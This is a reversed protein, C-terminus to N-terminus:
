SNKNYSIENLLKACQKLFIIKENLDLENQTLFLLNHNKAEFYCNTIEFEVFIQCLDNNFFDKVSNEDDSALIYNESFCENQDSLKINPYKYNQYFSDLDNITEIEINKQQFDNITSDSNNKQCIFFDPIQLNPNTLVCFTNNYVEMKPKNMILGSATQPKHYTFDALVFDFGYKNGSMYNSIESDTANLIQLIDEKTLNLPM